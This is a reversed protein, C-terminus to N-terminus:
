LAELDTFRIRVRFVNQRLYTIDDGPKPLVINANYRRFAALMHQRTNITVAASVVTASSLYTDLLYKVGYTALVLNWEHNITGDGREKGSLSVERVPFADVPQSTIGVQWRPGNETRRNRERLIEIINGLSALAVNSGLALAYDNAGAM